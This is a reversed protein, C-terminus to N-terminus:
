KEEKRTDKVKNLLKIDEDFYFGRSSYKKKVEEPIDWITPTRGYWQYGGEPPVPTVGHAELLRLMPQICEVKCGTRVGTLQSLEEPSKAGKLVAAAVEEARTATCYCIIQEPNLLAKKCLEDIKEYPVDEVAVSVKYPKELKEMTVAYVPCRQNCNGCGRCLEENIVAKRDVIEIAVTPCVKACTKCGTCKEKDVKAVLTILKM